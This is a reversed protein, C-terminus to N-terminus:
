LSIPNSDDINYFKVVSEYDSYDLNGTKGYDAPVILVRFTKNTIYNIYEPTDLDVTGGAYIVFDYRSFDFNYDIEEGNNLYMTIPIQQWIPANNNTTGVRLYMLLMDTEVIPTEFTRAIQWSSNNVWEFNVNTLDVAVPYTDYDVFQQNNDDDTCSFSLFGFIAVFLFPIIKKM